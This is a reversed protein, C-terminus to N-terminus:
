SLRDGYPTYSRIYKTSRNLCYTEYEAYPIVMRANGDFNIKKEIEDQIDQLEKLFKVKREETIERGDDYFASYASIAKGYISGVDVKGDAENGYIVSKYYASQKETGEHGSAIKSVVSEGLIYDFVYSKLINIERDLDSLSVYKEVNLVTGPQLSRSQSLITKNLDQIRNVTTGFKEAIESLSDGYSVTYSITEKYSIMNPNSNIIRDIVKIDESEFDIVSNSKSVEPKSNKLVGSIGTAVLSFGLFATCALLRTNVKLHLTNTTGNKNTYEADYVRTKYDKMM